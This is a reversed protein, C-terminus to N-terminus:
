IEKIRIGHVHLMLKRKLKYEATRMGKTDEVVKNGIMDTYVFDAIYYCPREILKGKHIGGRPGKTDPERQEPILLYSVQRQLGSIEGAKQLIKLEFYRNAEKKSDFTIGDITIKESHYKNKPLKTFVM